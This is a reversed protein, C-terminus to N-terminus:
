NKSGEVRMRRKRRAEGHEQWWERKWQKQAWRACLESCYRQRLHGAIFYPNECGPRRCKRLREEPIARLELKLLRYLTSAEYALEGFTREFREGDECDFSNSWGLWSVTPGPMLHEWDKRFARQRARWTSVRIEFRYGKGEAHVTLPGYRKTFRAAEQPESSWNAFDQIMRLPHFHAQKFRHAGPLYGPIATEWRGTIVRQDRSLSCEAVEAALTFFSIQARSNVLTSVKPMVRALRGCCLVRSCDMDDGDTM